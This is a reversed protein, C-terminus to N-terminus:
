GLIKVQLRAFAPCFEGGFGESKYSFWLQKFYIKQLFILTSQDLWSNLSEITMQDESNNEKDM